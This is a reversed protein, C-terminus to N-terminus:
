TSSGFDLKRDDCILAAIGVLAYISWPLKMVGINKQVDSGGVKRMQWWMISESCPSLIVVSCVDNVTVGGRLTMDV